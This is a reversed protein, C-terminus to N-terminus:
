ILREVADLVGRVTSALEDPLYPKEIFAVNAESLGHRVIADAPYGSSFVVKLKPHEVVLRDALERGNMGPMVIDTLLLDITGRQQEAIEIAERGEEAQLVTYGYMELLLAVLPRVAPDDEVLLITESGRLAVLEQPPLTTALVGEEHPLYVKFTTGLGPESYLFIHGGSQKVIGYVTALGLGTGESKTTFFPDFVRRRTQEDMGIGSDTLQLLAYHGPTVDVHESGYFKDLTVNTTRIMLKGGDPMAERANVALNLIVQGVQGRDVVVLSLTPDLDTVIEIDTGILRGLLKLTDEVVDNLDTTEPRLVQQRSFALLQRTLATAREAANDIQQLGEALGEDTNRKLLIANYGRIVMLLNNFDHAIGGTLSGIAEMKQSQRLQEELRDREEAAQVRESVDRAIWLMGSPSGEERIVRTSAEVPIRTGDQALISIELFESSPQGAIVSEVYANAAGVDEASLLADFGNRGVLHERAYGLVEEARRNISRVTGDLDTLFIMDGAAEVLEHYHADRKRLDKEARRWETVDYSIGFVRTPEGTANDYTALGRAVVVREEGTSHVIRHEIEYNQRLELGARIGEQLRALDDPHVGQFPEYPKGGDQPLTLGFIRYLEDSCEVTDAVPDWDWYGMRAVEQALALRGEAKRLHDILLRQETIILEAAEEPVFSPMGHPSQAM